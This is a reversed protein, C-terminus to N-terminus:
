NENKEEKFAIHVYASDIAYLETPKLGLTNVINITTQASYGSVTFDVARGFLHYSNSVGGVSNNHNKCRIGSSVIVPSGAYERIADLAEVVQKEMEVPFGNCYRGGCKCAFESKRFHKVTDWYNEVNEVPKDVFLTCKNGSALADFIVSLKTDKTIVIEM